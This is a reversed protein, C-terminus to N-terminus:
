TFRYVKKRKRGERGNSYEKMRTAGEKRILKKMGKDLPARYIVRGERRDEGKGAKRKKGREREKGGGRGHRPFFLSM